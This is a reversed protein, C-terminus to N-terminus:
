EGRIGGREIFLMKKRELFFVPCFQFFWHGALLLLLSAFLFSIWVILSNYVGCRSADWGDGRMEGMDGCVEGGFCIGCLLPGVSARRVRM